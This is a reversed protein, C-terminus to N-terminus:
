LEAPGGSGHPLAPSRPQEARNWSHQRTYWPEHSPAAAGTEGHETHGLLVPAMAAHVASREGCAAPKPVSRQKRSSKRQKRLQTHATHASLSQATLTFQATQTVAATPTRLCEGPGPGNESIGQAGRDLPLAELLKPSGTVDLATGVEPQANTLSRELPLSAASVSPVSPAAGGEEERQRAPETDSFRNQAESKSTISEYVLRCVPLLKAAKSDKLTAENHLRLSVSDWLFANFLVEADAKPFQEQAWCLLDRLQDKSVSVPHNKIMSELKDMAEKQTKSM